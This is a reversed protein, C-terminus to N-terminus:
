ILNLLRERSSRDKKEREREMGYHPMKAGYYVKQRDHTAPSIVGSVYRLQLCTGNVTEQVADCAPM